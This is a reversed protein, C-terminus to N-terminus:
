STQPFVATLNPEFSAKVDTTSSGECQPFQLTEDKKKVKKANIETDVQRINQEM